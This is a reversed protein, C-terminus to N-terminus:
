RGNAPAASVSYGERTSIANAAVRSLLEGRSLPGMPVRPARTGEWWLATVSLPGSVHEFVLRLADHLAARGEASMDWTAADWDADETLLDCADLTLRPPRNSASLLGTRAAIRKAEPATLVDGRIELMLCM